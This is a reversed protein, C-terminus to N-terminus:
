DFKFKEATFFVMSFVFLCCISHSSISAFSAISLSNIALIYLCSMFSLVLFCGLWFTPLLGFCVNKWVLCVSLWCACSFISLVSIILSSHLDSSFYLILIAKVLFDVFLLHQLLHLSVPVRRCQQHSHLCTYDSHPVTHPNRLFRFISNGYSGAIGSRPM